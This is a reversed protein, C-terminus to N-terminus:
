PEYFYPNFKIPDAGDSSVTIRGYYPQYEPVLAEMSDIIGGSIRMKYVDFLVTCAYDGSFEVTGDIHFTHVGKESNIKCGWQAYLDLEDSIFLKGTESYFNIFEVQLHITCASDPLLYLSDAASTCLSDPKIVPPVIRAIIYGNFNGMIRYQIDPDNAKSTVSLTQDLMNLLFGNFEEFAPLLNDWTVALNARDAGPSSGVDGPNTLDSRGSSCALCILFVLLLANITKM